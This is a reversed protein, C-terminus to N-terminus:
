TVTNHPMDKAVEQLILLSSDLLPARLCCVLGTSGPIDLLLPSASTVKGTDLFM